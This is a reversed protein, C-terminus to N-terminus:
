LDPDNKEWVEKIISLAGRREWAKFDPQHFRKHSTSESMGLTSMHHRLTNVLRMRKLLEMFRNDDMNADLALVYAYHPEWTPDDPDNYDYFEKRYKEVFDRVCQNIGKLEWLDFGKQYLRLYTTSQSCGATKFAADLQARFDQSLAKNNLPLHKNLRKEIDAFNKTM